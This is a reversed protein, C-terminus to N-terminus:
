WSGLAKRGPTPHGGPPPTVAYGMKMLQSAAEEPLARCATRTQVRRWEARERDVADRWSDLSDFQCDVILFQVVDELNPRFRSGGTPLHLTSMSHPKDRGTQSLLHSLAGREGHVQIHSHPVWDADYLYEFRFVPTADVKAVMWIKSKDIALFESTADLRCLFDLRLWALLDGKAYLPVGGQKETQRELQLRARSGNTTLKMGPADPLCEALFASVNNGFKEAEALLSNPPTATM